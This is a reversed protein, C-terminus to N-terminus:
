LDPSKKFKKRIKYIYAQKEAPTPDKREREYKEKIVDKMEDDYLKDKYYRAMPYSIGNPLKCETDCTYRYYDSIKNDLFQQGIGPNRSSLIFNKLTRNRFNIGSDSDKFLRREFIDNEESWDLSSLTYKSCYIIREDICEDVMVGGKNWKSFVVDTLEQLYHPNSIDVPINFLLLHYHPRGGESGYESVLFYRLGQGYTNRMAKIFLQCDKKSFCPTGNDTFPLHADSYTLTIFYCSSSHKWENFLRFAWENAKKVLCAECKGCPVDIFPEQAPHRSAVLSKFIKDRLEGYVGKPVEDLLYSVQKNVIRLPQLCNM